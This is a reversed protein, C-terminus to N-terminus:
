NRSKSDEDYSEKVRVALITNKMYFIGVVLLGISVMFRKLLEGNSFWTAELGFGQIAVRLGQSDEM